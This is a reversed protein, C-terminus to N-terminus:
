KKYRINPIPIEKVFRTVSYLDRNHGISEIKFDNKSLSFEKSLFKELSNDDVLINGDYNVPLIPADNFACYLLL